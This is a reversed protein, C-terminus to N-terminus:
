EEISSVKTKSRVSSKNRDFRGEILVVRILYVALNILFNRHHSDTIVIRVEALIVFPTSLSLLPSVKANFDFNQHSLRITKKNAM